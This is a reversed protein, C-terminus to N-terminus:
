VKELILNNNTVFIEVTKKTQLFKEKAQYLRKEIRDSPNRDMQEMRVALIEGAIRYDNWVSDGNKFKCFGSPKPYECVTNNGYHNIIRKM